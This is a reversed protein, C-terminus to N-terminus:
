RVTVSKALNRPKDVDNGKVLAAHYALLQLPLVTVLPYFLEPTKPLPIYEDYADNPEDSIGILRAGRAKTEMGNSLTDSFTYDHPNILLVPTGKEILALSGHKLEGAPMGEAHMYSIEKLKLAGELAVPFNVGRALFYAHDQNKWTEALTRAQTEWNPLLDAAHRAVHKLQTIGAETQGALAHAVMYLVALQATFAKTSAVAIEPGCNLYLSADSERDISSGAVNVLSAIKAGKAKAKRLGILVDATEGSQSVAIILTRPTCQDAFYAFESAIYVEASKGTLQNLAYRGVLAAHRSTGCAVFKVDDHERLLQVFRELRAPDQALANRIAAPQEHIEKIMFHPWDGKGADEAKWELHRASKDLPAGTRVDRYTVTGPRIIALEHDDLFVAQQTHELFPMVDSAAYTADNGIGIVLPSECRLAALTHPEDANVALIAFSGHLRSAIQTMREELPGQADELLHAIVESDTQSTFRHGHATLESRLQQFNEIIGNHVIAFRAHCDSHPHANDDTVGGHTAWRSHTLGVTGPAASLAHRKEVEDIKGIGKRVHLKGGDLTAIGCSDYGRYELKKLGELLLPGAPTHGVVGFIGCM